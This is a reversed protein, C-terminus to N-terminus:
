LIVPSFTSERCAYTLSSIKFGAKMTFMHLDWNWLSFGSCTYQTNASLLKMFSLLVGPPGLVTCNRKGSGGTFDDKFLVISVSLFSGHSCLMHFMFLLILWRRLCDQNVQSTGSLVPAAFLVFRLCLLRHHAWHPKWVGRDVSCFDTTIVCGPGVPVAILDPLNVVFSRLALHMEMYRIMQYLNKFYIDSSFTLFYFPM